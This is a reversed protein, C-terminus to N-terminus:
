KSAKSDNFNSLCITCKKFHSEVQKVVQKVSKNKPTVNLPTDKEQM